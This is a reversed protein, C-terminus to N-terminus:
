ETSVKVLPVLKEKQHVMETKKDWKPVRTCLRKFVSQTHKFCLEWCAPIDIRGQLITVDKQLVQTDCGSVWRLTAITPTFTSASKTLSTCSPRPCTGVSLRWTETTVPWRYGTRAPLTLSWCFSRLKWSSFWFSYQFSSLFSDSACENQKKSVCAITVNLINQQPFLAHTHPLARQCPSRAGQCRHRGTLDCIPNRGRQAHQFCCNNCSWDNGRPNAKVYFLLRHFHANQQQTNPGKSFYCRRKSGM